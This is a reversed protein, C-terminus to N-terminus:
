ANEKEAPRWNVKLLAPVDHFVYRFFLEQFANSLDYFVWNKKKKKKWKYKKNLEDRILNHIMLGPLTKKAMGIYNYVCLFLWKHYLCHLLLM